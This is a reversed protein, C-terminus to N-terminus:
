ASRSLPLGVPQDIEEHRLPAALCPASRAQAATAKDGAALAVAGGAALATLVDRRDIRPSAPHPPNVAM